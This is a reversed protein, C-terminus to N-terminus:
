GTDVPLYNGVYRILIANRNEPDFVAFSREFTALYKCTSVAYRRFVNALELLVATLFELRAIIQLELINVRIFIM